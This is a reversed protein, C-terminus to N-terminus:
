AAMQLDHLMGIQRARETAKSYDVAKIGGIEHVAEPRDREIEQAILGIRPTADGKYRYSYVTTDDYLKGVPHIDDKVREDSFMGMFGSGLGSLWGQNGGQNFAGTGGLLGLGGLTGGIIQQSMPSQTTTTGSSTGSSKGGLGAIPNVLGEAAGLNAWPLQAQMNAAGLQAMGPQMLMGPIQGAAGMGAMQNQLMMQQQQTLGSATQGAANGLQNAAGMQNQTLTNFENALLGGEGQSLGRALAQTTDANTGMPRGAAAAQGQIQNTIDSGMTKMASSLAPNTYPNTYGASLMPSLAGQQQGYAGRLIDQQNGTNSGFLNSVAQEGQAGYSPVGGAEGVIQGTASTQGATPSFNGQGVQGLIDKLLPQTPQWPNTSSTQSGAQQQQTGGSM